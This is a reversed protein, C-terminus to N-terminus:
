ADIAVRKRQRPSTASLLPAMNLAVPKMLTVSQSM